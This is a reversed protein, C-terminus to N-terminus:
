NKGFFVEMSVLLIYNPNFDYREEWEVRPELEYYLWDRWINKKYVSYIAYKIIHTDPKTRGITSVGIQFGRQYISTNIYALNNYFETGEFDDRTKRGAHFRIFANNDDLLRDVYLNTGEEFKYKSSYKVYQDVKNRWKGFTFPIWLKSKAYPNDFSSMGVSVYTQFFRKTPKSYVLGVTESGSNNYNGYDTEEDENDIFLALRNKTKPLILKSRISISPKLRKTKQDYKLTTKIRLNSERYTNEFIDDEFFSSFWNNDAAVPKNHDHNHDCTKNSDFNCIFTTLKNDLHHSFIYVKSQMYAYSSDIWSEETPTVNHEAILINSIFIWLILIQKINAIKNHFM